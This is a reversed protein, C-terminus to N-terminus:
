LFHPSTNRRKEQEQYKFYYELASLVEGNMSRHNKEASKRLQELMEPPLYAMFRVPKKEKETDM